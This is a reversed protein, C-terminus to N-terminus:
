CLFEELERVFREPEQWMFFIARLRTSRSGRTPFRRRSCSRTAPDVVLDGDGHQV